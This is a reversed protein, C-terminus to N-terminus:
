FGKKKIHEILHEPMILKGDEKVYRYPLIVEEDKGTKIILDDQWEFDNLTNGNCIKHVVYVATNTSMQKEGINRIDGSMKDSLEDKTRQRMPYDGLIGGFILYDFKKSDSSIFTKKAAPDLICVNKLDLETVSKSYVEGLKSLLEQGKKGKVNTFMLNEKGVTKSIHEYEMHCWKYIRGDLHEIIYKMITLIKNHNLYSKVHLYFKITLRYDDVNFYKLPVQM